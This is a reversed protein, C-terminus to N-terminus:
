IQDFLASLMWTYLLKDRKTRTPQKFHRDSMLFDVRMLLASIFKSHINPKTTWIFIFQLRNTLSALFTRDCFFSCCCMKINIAEFAFFWTTQQKRMNKERKKRGISRHWFTHESSVYLFSFSSIYTVVNIETTMNVRRNHTM